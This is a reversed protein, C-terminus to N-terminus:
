VKKLNFKGCCGTKSLNIPHHGCCQNKGEIIDVPKGSTCCIQKSYDYSKTGCCKIRYGADVPHGIECCIQSIPRSWQVVDSTIVSENILTESSDTSNQVSITSNFLDVLPNLMTLNLVLNFDDNKVSKYPM